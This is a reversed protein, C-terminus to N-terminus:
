AKAAEPLYIVSREERGGLGRDASGPKWEGGHSCVRVSLGQYSPNVDFAPLPQGPPLALLRASSELVVRPGVTDLEM